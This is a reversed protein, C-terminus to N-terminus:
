AGLKHYLATTEAAVAEIFFRQQFQRHATEGLTERLRPSDHLRTIQRALAASDGPPALWGAEGVVWPVGSGPIDTALIPKAYRMAEMLVVGFAETRELSPLVFADCAAFWPPLAEVRGAFKVRDAVGVERAERKLSVALEGEGILALSAFPCEKLARILFVYGKYFTLRGVSLLRFPERSNALAPWQRKANEVAVPAAEPLRERAIGLPIVQIKDRWPRLADSHAAYPPSTALIKKARALVAQEWPRYGKYAWTLRWDWGAGLVDAHWHVVWPLRRAAPSLLAWFVSTNPLHLHLLDPKERALVRNLWFPFAPSVPAYLIRGHCPARYIRPLADADPRVPQFPHRAHHDHVLAIPEVGRTPLAGLLDALFQEMGGAFPPYFKGLHLVRAPTTM